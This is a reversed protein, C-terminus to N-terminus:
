RARIPQREPRFRESERSREASDREAMGCVSCTMLEYFPVISTTEEVTSFFGEKHLLDRHQYLTVQAGGGNWQRCKYGTVRPLNGEEDAEALAALMIRKRMAWQTPTLEISSPELWPKLKDLLTTV